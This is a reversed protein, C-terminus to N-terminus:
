KLRTYCIKDDEERSVVHRPHNNNNPFHYIHNDDNKRYFDNNRYIYNDGHVDHYNYNDGQVDDYYSSLDTNVRDDGWYNFSTGHLNRMSFNLCAKTVHVTILISRTNMPLRTPFRLSVRQRNLRGSMKPGPYSLTGFGSENSVFVTFEVEGDEMDIEFMLSQTNMLDVPVGWGYGLEVYSGEKQIGHMHLAGDHIAISDADGDESHVNLERISNAPSVGIPNTKQNRTDSQQDYAGYYITQQGYANTPMHRVVTKPLFQNTEFTDRFAKADRYEERYLNDRERLLKDRRLEALGAPTKLFKAYKERDLLYRADEEKRDYAERAQWKRGAPTKLWKRHEDERAIEEKYWKSSYSYPNNLEYLAAASM